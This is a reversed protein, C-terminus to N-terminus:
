WGSIEWRAPSYKKPPPTLGAGPMLTAVDFYVKRWPCFSDFVAGPQRQAKQLEHAIELARSRTLGEDAMKRRRLSRFYVVADRWRKWIVAADRRDVSPLDNRLALTVYNVYAVVRPHDWDIPDPHFAHALARYLHGHRAPPDPLLTPPSPVRDLWASARKPASLDPIGRGAYGAAGTNRTEAVPTADALAVAVFVLDQTWFATNFGYEASSDRSWALGRRFGEVRESWYDWINEGSVEDVQVVDHRLAATVQNVIEIVDAITTMPVTKGDARQLSMTGRKAIWADRLARWTAAPRPLFTFAPPADSKRPPWRRELSVIAAALPNPEDRVKPARKGVRAM